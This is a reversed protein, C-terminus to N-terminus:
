TLHKRVLLPPLIMHDQEDFLVERIHKAIAFEGLAKCQRIRERYNKTRTSKTGFIRASCRKLKRCMLLSPEVTPMPGLYYDIQRSITLAHQLEVAHEQLQDAISMYEAGKLVQSYAVYAIIAQYERALDEDLLAALKERSLAAQNAM